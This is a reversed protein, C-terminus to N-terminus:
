RESDRAALLVDRVCHTVTSAHQVRRALWMYCFLFKALRPLRRTVSIGVDAIINLIAVVLHSM